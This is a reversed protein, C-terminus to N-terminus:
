FQLWTLSSATAGQPNYEAGVWGAYDSGALFDFVSQLNAHGTGPQGRGPCDAFQVHGIKHLHEMMFKLCDEGMRFMHYLDYQMSLNPQQVAQMIDLMQQGNHVLFHPMDYTNIAEFVIRPQRDAFQQCCYILNKQFTQLYVQQQSVDFCRGPLVNIVEPNLIDAYDCALDVAKKFAQTKAPVAALGEGGNMLDDAAINFLVLKLQHQQLQQAIECATFAYPFQIEVANFGAEKAAKFRQLFDLEPFLLSLNATFQLM